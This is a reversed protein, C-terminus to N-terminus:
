FISFILNGLLLGKRSFFLLDNEYLLMGNDIFEQLKPYKDFINIQYKNNVFSVNVGNLLRLGMMLEERLPEVEYYEKHTFDKNIGNEIYKSVNSINSFRKGKYLSHAGSGIGLYEMNKWYVTNHLSQFGDKSFNSVEYHFFGNESLIDIVKNYMLSELDESNMSILNQKYLHYLITKEELILSYYSIHKIDLKLLEKIDDVLEETTQNVLSFIMDININTIGTDNLHKIAKTVDDKAHTRGLFKLHKDNFTQVGISVRSIKYKKFLEAKEKTIDNPNTEISFEKLEKISIHNNIEIFLKELLINPLSSPTGGGIYISVLKKFDNKYSKLENILSNIYKEQKKPTAIEKHFDCYTCVKDCFPIHIYLATLM